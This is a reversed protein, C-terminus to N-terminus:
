GRSFYMWGDMLYLWSLFAVLLILGGIVIRTHIRKEGKSM